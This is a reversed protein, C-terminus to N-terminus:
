KTEYANIEVGIKIKAGEPSGMLHSSDEDNGEMWMVLTYRKVAGIEFNEVFKDAIVKESEFLKAYGGQFDPMPTRSEEDYSIPTENIVDGTPSEYPIKRWKAYVAKDHTDSNMDNEYLMLRMTDDLYRPIKEETPLSDMINIKFQYRAEVNGINKLFFTYKFYNLRDIGGDPNIVGGALYDTEENDLYEDGPLNTFTTEAFQPLADIHLFSEQREFTSTESLTLAVNANDLAVTFTGVFRGLFAVISFVGIGTASIGAGLAIAIRRIRKAVYRREFM